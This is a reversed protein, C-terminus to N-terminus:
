TVDGRAGNWGARPDFVQRKSWSEVAQKLDADIDPPVVIKILVFQDGRMGSSSVGKGAIRLRAGSSVGPPIKLLVTGDITPTKVEAGLVAEAFSIPLEMELNRGIRKFLASPRVSLEVFADGAPARGSGASGLGAFRLKAGSEVGAPIKVQLRKGSPLTIEREAGLITDKFDVEMRYLSDQGPIDGSFGFGEGGKGGMRGFVSRLLDDDMGEFNQTYRGGDRQTQHYFPRQGQRGRSAEANENAADLEGKDFKARMEPTGVREYAGAIEKFRKESDKNGPNLDPHLKKALNRYATKIEDQSATSAVGLLQYPSMSM